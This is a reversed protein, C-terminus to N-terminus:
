KAQTFSGTLRLSGWAIVLTGKQGQRELRITLTDVPDKSAELQIPVEAAKASPEYDQPPKSSFLLSWVGKEIYRVLLYDKGKPVRVGDFVLDATSRFTTPADSGVRWVEGPAIMSLPDRGKLAPRGYDISVKAKGLTVQALGRDDEQSAARGLCLTLIVLLGALLTLALLSKRDRNTEGIAVRPKM